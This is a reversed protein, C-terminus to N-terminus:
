LIKFVFGPAPYASGMFTRTATPDIISEIGQDLKAKDFTLFDSCQRGRRPDIIQIYEGKKVEYIEATRRKVLKEYLPDGLPEPLIFQEESEEFKSKNLFVTLDTPPNQEHVNMAEGPAAIMVICKDKSILTIKEGVLCDKNFLISSKAKNIDLKKHNFLRQFKKIKHFLKKQFVLMEM